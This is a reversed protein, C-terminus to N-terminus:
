SPESAYKSQTTRFDFPSIRSGQDPRLCMYSAGRPVCGVNKRSFRISGPSLSAIKGLAIAGLHISKTSVTRMSIKEVNMRSSFSPCSPTRPNSCLYVFSKARILSALFCARNGVSLGFSTSCASGLVRKLLFDFNLLQFLCLTCDRSFCFLGRIGDV